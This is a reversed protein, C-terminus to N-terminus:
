VSGDWDFYFCYTLQPRQVRTTPLENSDDSVSGLVQQFHLYYFPVLATPSLDHPVDEWTTM